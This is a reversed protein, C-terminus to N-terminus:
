SQEVVFKEKDVVDAEIEEFLLNAAKRKQTKVAQLADLFAPISTPKAIPVNLRKCEKLIYRYM